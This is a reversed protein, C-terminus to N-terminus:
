KISYKPGDLKTAYIDAHAAVPNERAVSRFAYAVFAVDRVVEFTLKGCACRPKPGKTLILNRKSVESRRM